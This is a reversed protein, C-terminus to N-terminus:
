QTGGQLLYTDSTDSPPLGLRHNLFQLNDVDSFSLEGDMRLYFTSLAVRASLCFGWLSSVQRAFATYDVVRRPLSYTALDIGGDVPAALGIQRFAAADYVEIFIFCIPLRQPRLSHVLSVFCLGHHRYSGIFDVM